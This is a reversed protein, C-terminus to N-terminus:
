GNRPEKEVAERVAAFLPNDLIRQYVEAHATSPSSLVRVLDETFRELAAVHTVGCVAGDPNPVLTPHYVKVGDNTVSEVSHRYRELPWKPTEM